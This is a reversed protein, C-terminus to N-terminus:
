VINFDSLMEKSIFEVRLYNGNKHVKWCKPNQLFTITSIKIGKNLKDDSVEHM